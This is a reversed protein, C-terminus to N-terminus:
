SPFKNISLWVYTFCNRIGIQEYEKTSKNFKAIWVIGIGKNWHFQHSSEKKQLLKSFMSPLNSHIFPLMQFLFKHKKFPDVYWTNNYAHLTEGWIWIKLNEIPCFISIFQTSLSILIFSAFDSLDWSRNKLLLVYTHHVM